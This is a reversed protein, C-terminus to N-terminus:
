RTLRYLGYSVGVLVLDKVPSLWTLPRALFVGFCGCNTLKLGRLLSTTMLGFYGIHTLVSLLAAMALQWGTLIWVGLVLEFGTLALASPVYSWEPLFTVRYTKMIDVFGRIDLAKGLGAGAIIVGLLIRFVWVLVLEM